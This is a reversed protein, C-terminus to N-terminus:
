PRPNCSDWAKQGHRSKGSESQPASDTQKGQCNSSLRLRRLGKLACAVKKLATLRGLSAARELREHLEIRRVRIGPRQQADRTCLLVLRRLALFAEVFRKRDVRM